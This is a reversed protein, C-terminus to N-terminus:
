DADNAEAKKTSGTRGRLTRWCLPLGRFAWRSVADSAAFRRRLAGPRDSLPDPLPLRESSQDREAPRRQAPHAPTITGRYRRSDSGRLDAFGHLSATACCVFSGFARDGYGQRSLPCCDPGLHTARGRSRARHLPIDIRAAAAFRAPLNLVQAQINVDLASVPEDAVILEPSVALARAISIRQRQGGSFEHPYKSAASVPLGVLGLIENVRQKTQATSTTLGHFNIPEALTTGVTM